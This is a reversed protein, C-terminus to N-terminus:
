AWEKSAIISAAIYRDRAMILRQKVYANKGNNGQGIEVVAFIKQEV